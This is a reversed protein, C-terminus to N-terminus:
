RLVLVMVKLGIPLDGVGRVSVGAPWSMMGVGFEVLMGVSILVCSLVRTSWATSWARVLCLTSISSFSVLICVDVSWFNCVIVLLISFFLVFSVVSMALSFSDCLLRLVDMSAFSSECESLKWCIMAARPLSSLFSSFSFVDGTLFCPFWPCPELSVGLLMCAQSDRKKKGRRRKRVGVVARGLWSVIEVVLMPEM